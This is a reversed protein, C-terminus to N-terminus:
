YRRIPINLACGHTKYFLERQGGFACQNFQIEWDEGAETYFFGDDTVAIDWGMSPIGYFFRHLEITKSYLEKWFPIELGSFKEGTDPHMDKIVVHKRGKGVDFYGNDMLRGNKDIGVFFGGQGANDVCKGGMGFRLVAGLFIVNDNNYFTTFRNTNLAHPYIKKIIHHNSLREQIIYTSDGFMEKLKDISAWEGNISLQGDTNNLTFAGRGLEGSVEKCFADFSHKKISEIDEFSICKSNYWSVKGNNILAITSPHPANISDLFQYFVFKDRVLALYNFTYNTMVNERQRINLINRLARFEQYGVYEQPRRGKIDLGYAFYYDCPERYKLAWILNEFLMKLKTKRQGSFHQINYEQNWPLSLAKIYTRINKAIQIFIGGKHRSPSLYYSGNRTETHIYWWLKFRM